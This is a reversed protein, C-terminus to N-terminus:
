PASTFFNTSTSKAKIVEEWLPLSSTKKELLWLPTHCYTRLPGPLRRSTFPHLGFGHVELLKFHGNLQLFRSFSWIAFGRVHADLIVMTTPQRGLLLLLCNHLASINPVSLMLHGGPKLVRHMEGLPGFINKLHELVQNCIVIDYSGDADPFRQTELDVRQFEIIERVKPTRLDRWDYIVAREPRSLQDRYGATHWGTYGGLELLTHSDQGYHKVMAAIAQRVRFQTKDHRTTGVKASPEYELLYQEM